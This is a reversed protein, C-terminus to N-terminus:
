SVTGPEALRAVLLIGIGLGVYFIVTVTWAIRDDSM